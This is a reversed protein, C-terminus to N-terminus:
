AKAQGAKLKERERLERKLAKGALSVPIEDVFEIERIKKYPTVQDAVFSMIEEASTVAGPEEDMRGIDGTLLWGDRLVQATEEPRGLYGQMVQPSKICIEGTEGGVLERSSDDLDVIKVETDFIPIGVSGPKRLGSWNAPNATAGMTAETLGYAEM